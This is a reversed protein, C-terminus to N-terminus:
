REIKETDSNADAQTVTVTIGEVSISEGVSRPALWYEQDAPNQPFIQVSGQGSEISSDVLYILAGVKSMKKDIGIARRSEIVLAKTRGIPVVVAKIGSTTELATITQVLSNSSMCIIQDDEIWGLVWREWALLGPSASDFSSLGMYSFEGTFRLGKMSSTSDEVYPYLDALGMTHTIEHNLWISGWGLLDAASTAGNGLYKGDFTVGDGRIPAFAPGVIGLGEADPNALVIFNDVKSFDTEADALTLAEVVYNRHTKFSQNLPAYASSPESMRYWKYNPVFTYNLKGYSVEDFTASSGSIKAFAEQPTMSAPADSFDVMVVATVVKGTTQLRENIRPFGGIAVDGRGDAVPLKCAQRIDIVAQPTAAQIGGFVVVAVVVGVIVWGWRPFKKKSEAESDEAM